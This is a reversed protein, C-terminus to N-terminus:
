KFHLVLIMILSFFFIYIRQLGVGQCNIKNGLKKDKSIRYWGSQDGQM